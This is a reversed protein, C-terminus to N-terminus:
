HSSQYLANKLAQVLREATKSKVGAKTLYCKITCLFITQIKLVEYFNGTEIYRSASIAALTAAGAAREVAAAKSCPNGWKLSNVALEQIATAGVTKLGSTSISQLFLVQTSLDGPWVAGAALGFLKLLDGRSWTQLPRAGPLGPVTQANFLEIAARVSEDVEGNTVLVPIHASARNSTLHKPVPVGVLQIIQQYIQQWKGITLRSGPDGKLQFAYLTRKSDWAVVDKGLELPTHATNHLISYGSACLASVFAPQYARESASDLWIEIWKAVELNM